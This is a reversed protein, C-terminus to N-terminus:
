RGAVPVDVRVNPDGGLVTQPMQGNWRRWREYEVLQPTLSAARVGNAYAEAEALTRVKVAEAEAAVRAQEADARAKALAAESQAAQLSAAARQQALQAQGQREAQAQEFQAQEIARQGNLRATILQDLQDSPDMGRISVTRVKIGVPELRAQVSREAEAEYELRRAGYADEWGFKTCADRIGARVEPRVVLSAIDQGRADAYLPVGPRMRYLDGVRQPDVSWATATDMRITQQDRMVCPVSQDNQSGAGVMELTYEATPYEALRKCRPDVFVYRADTITESTGSCYDILVGANGPDVRDWFSWWAVGVGVAVLAVLGVLAGRGWGGSKM